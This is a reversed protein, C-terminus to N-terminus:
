TSIISSTASPPKRGPVSSASCSQPAGLAAADSAPFILPDTHLLRFIEAADAGLLAVRGLFSCRSKTGGGLRSSPIGRGSTPNSVIKYVRPGLPTEPPTPPRPPPTLIMDNASPPAASSMGRHKPTMKVPSPPMQAGFMSEFIYIKHICIHTNLTHKM